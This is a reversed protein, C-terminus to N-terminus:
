NSGSYPEGPMPYMEVGPDGTPPDSMGPMKPLPTLDPKVLKVSTPDINRVMRVTNYIRIADGQPGRGKPFNAPNGTKPDSRQCGAGHVDVWQGMNGMARGFAIYVAARGPSIGHTTSTWYCAFDAIGGENKIPTCSFLPDIAATKTSDPSRSYDLISQLEKANPLRWDSYGMYKDNNRAQVWALANKWPMGKKSDNKAWMLGTARDSITNDGNDRLDNIGYRSNGRVGLVFFTKEMGGPMTLDYGKIRGDAFNVGFLKYSGFWNKNIYLTSSAYQSDIVREGMNQQGYAFRFYKRDIFPILGTTDGNMGSPDMGNFTILSYLEKISPLRWDSYGGFKAANLAAPRKKAQALTLKDKRTLSSKGDLDPSRQWTLGTNNDYVTLGDDSASYSPPHIQYQADQGFFPEEKSPTTTLQGSNNYINKQGTDVVCYPLAPQRADKQSYANGCISIALIMAILKM